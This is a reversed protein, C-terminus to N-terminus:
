EKDLDTFAEKFNLKFFEEMMFRHRGKVMRTYLEVVFESGMNSVYIFIQKSYEICIHSKSQNWNVYNSTIPDDGYIIKSSNNNYSLMLWYPQIFPSIFDNLITSNELLIRTIAGYSMHKFYIKLCENIKTAIQGYDLGESSVFLPISTALNTILKNIESIPLYRNSLVPHICLKDVGSANRVMQYFMFSFIVDYSFAGVNNHQAYHDIHEKKIVFCNYNTELKGYFLHDLKNYEYPNVYELQSVLEATNSEVNISSQYLTNLARIEHTINNKKVMLGAYRRFIEEQIIIKSWGDLAIHHFSIILYYKKKMKQIYINVLRDSGTRVILKALDRKYFFIPEKRIIDSQISTSEFYYEGCILVLKSNLIFNNKLTQIIAQKLKSLDIGDYLCLYHIIYTNYPTNKYQLQHSYVYSQWNDLLVLRKYKPVILVPKILCSNIDVIQTKDSIKSLDLWLETTEFIFSALGIYDISELGLSNLKTSMNIQDHDLLCKLYHVIKATLDDKM